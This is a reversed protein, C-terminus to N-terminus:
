QSKIYWNSIYNVSVGRRDKHKLTVLTQVGTYNGTWAVGIAKGGRKAENKEDL